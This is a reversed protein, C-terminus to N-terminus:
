AAIDKALLYLGVFIIAFVAVGFIIAIGTPSVDHGGVYTSQIALWTAPNM